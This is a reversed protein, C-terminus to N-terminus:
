NCGGDVIVRVRNLNNNEYYEANTNPEDIKAYLIYIGPALVIDGSTNFTTNYPVAGMAVSAKLTGGPTNLRITNQTPISTLFGINLVFFQARFTCLGNLKMTAESTPLTLTSGWAVPLANLGFTMGGGTFLLERAFTVAQRERPPPADAILPPSARVAVPPAPPVPPTSAFATPVALLCAVCLLSRAAPM